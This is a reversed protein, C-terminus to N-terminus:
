WRNKLIEISEDREILRQKTEKIITKINEWKENINNDVNDEDEINELMEFRNNLDIAYKPKWESNQFSNVIKREENYKKETKVRFKVNFNM